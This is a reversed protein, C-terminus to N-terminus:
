GKWEEDSPKRILTLPPTRGDDGAAAATTGATTTASNGGGGTTAASAATQQYGCNCGEDCCIRVLEHEGCTCPEEDEEDYPCDERILIIYDAEFFENRTEDFVVRNKRLPPPRNPKKLLGRLTGATERMDIPETRYIPVAEIVCDCATPHNEDTSILLGHTTESPPGLLLGGVSGTECELEEELEDYCYRIQYVTPEYHALHRTDFECNTHPDTALIKELNLFELTEEETASDSLDPDLLEDESPTQSVPPNSPLELDTNTVRPKGGPFIQSIEESEVSSESPTARNFPHEPESESSKHVNNNADEDEPILPQKPTLPAPFLYQPLLSPLSSAKSLAQQTPHDLNLSTRIGLLNQEPQNSDQNNNHNTKTNTNNNNVIDQHQKQQRQKRELDICSLSLLSSASLSLLSSSLPPLIPAIRKSKFSHSNQDHEALTDKQLCSLSSTKWPSQLPNDNPRTSSAPLASTSSTLPLVSAALNTNTSDKTYDALLTSLSSLSSSLNQPPVIGSSSNSERLIKKTYAFGRFREELRKLRNSAEFCESKDLPFNNSGSSKSPFSPYDKREDTETESLGSDTPASGDLHRLDSDENECVQVSIESTSKNPGSYPSSPSRFSELHSSTQTDQDRSQQGASKRFESSGAGLVIPIPECIEGEEASVGCDDVDDDIIIIGSDASSPTVNSTNNRGSNRSTNTASDKLIKGDAVVLSGPSHSAAATAANFFNFDSLGHVSIHANLTVEVNLSGYSGEAVGHSTVSSASPPGLLPPSCTGYYNESESDSSKHYSNEQEQNQDRFNPTSCGSKFPIRDTSPVQISKECSSDRILQNEQGFELQGHASTRTGATVVNEVQKVLPQPSRSSEPQEDIRERLVREAGTRTCSTSGVQDKGNFDREVDVFDVSRSAASSSDIWSRPQKLSGSSSSGASAACANQKGASEVSRYNDEPSPIEDIKSEWRPTMPTDSNLVVEAATNTDGNDSLTALVRPLELSAAGGKSARSTSDLVAPHQCNQQHNHHHCHQEHGDYHLMPCACQLMEKAETETTTPVCDVHGGAAAASLSGTAGTRAGRTEGGNGFISVFDDTQKTETSIENGAVGESTKGWGSTEFGIITDTVDWEGEKTVVDSGIEDDGSESDGRGGDEEEEEDREDFDDDLLFTVRKVKAKPQQEKENNGLVGGPEAIETEFDILDILPGGNDVEVDATAAAADDNDGGDANNERRDGFVLRATNPPSHFLDRHWRELIEAQSLERMPVSDQKQQPQQKQEQLVATTTTTSPESELEKGDFPTPQQKRLTRKVAVGVIVPTTAAATTSSSSSSSTTPVLPPIFDNVANSSSGGNTTKFLDDFILLSEVASPPPPVPPPISTTTSTPPHQLLLSKLTEM